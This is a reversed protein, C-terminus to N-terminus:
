IGFILLFLHAVSLAGMAYILVKSYLSSFGNNAQNRFGFHIFAHAILFLDLIIFLIFNGSLGGWVLAALAAFYLPLHLASFVRYATEEPMDKLIIFMRWEKTRIADMEHLLLLSLIFVFLLTALM